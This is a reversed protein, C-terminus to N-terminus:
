AATRIRVPRPVRARRCETCRFALSCLGTRRRAERWSLARGPRAGGDGVGRRSRHPPPPPPARGPGRRALLAVAAVRPLLAEHAVEVSGGDAVLLRRGVFANLVEDGAAGATFEERPMRRRVDDTGEGTEALRLFLRRALAQGEADLTGYVDDALCALAGHVGGAERYAALSLTSGDRRVWTEAMATSVLPLAAAEPGADECVADVLGDDLVLGARRAPETIARRLEADSMAGVLVQSQEFMQALEPHVALAGYYDARVVPVLVVPVDPDTVADVLTGAFREREEQDRCLTAVEEFQDVVVVVRAGDRGRVAAELVGGLEDLQRDLRRALEPGPVNVLPAVAEALSRLPHEGPTCTCTPWADSGPLAGASLAPLLGAHVLSSKGSGSAGIVGVFRDAALRAVLAAVLRERGYFFPADAEEYRALGKYPCVGLATGDRAQPALRGRELVSAAVDHRLQRAELTADGIRALAREARGAADHERLREAVDRVLAPNGSTEAWVAAGLEATVGEISHMLLAGVGTADLGTLERANDAAYPPERSAAVILVGACEPCLVHLNPASLDDLVTLTLEGTADLSATAGSHYTVTAGGAHVRRAFEALLRSKGIGRPGYVAATVREGAVARQWLVELWELDNARGVLPQTDATLPAPLPQLHRAPGPGIRPAPFPGGLSPHRAEFLDVGDDFDKLAFTGLSHVSCQAPTAEGIAAATAQSLLVQGGHAADKVRAAQHVALAVYDGDRPEAEGTHLGMRVRVPAEQPWAETALSGQASVAAGLAGAASSFAFFLGDGEANVEVGGGHAVGARVLERHRELVEVYAHGLRRFLATSGEIDTLLFTVTGSPLAHRSAGQVPAAAPAVWDLEPKQLVIADALQVLHASPELGVEEGLYRRYAEYARLADAHRGARYLALMLQGRPRERLPYDAVIAELEGIVEAHRGVALAIEIRDEIAAARLGELRVADGRAFDLDALEGWAPGRWLALAADFSSKAEVLEGAAGLRSAIALLSEFCSADSEGEGVRLLYGPPRTVLRDPGVVSRLRYVYKQVTSLASEPPEDGWVIDVLRDTSVVANARAVLAALVLGQRAGGLAVHDGDVVAEFPGLVQFLVGQPADDM